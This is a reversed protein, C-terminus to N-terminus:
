GFGRVKKKKRRNRQSATSQSSEMAREQSAPPLSFAPTISDPLSEVGHQSFTGFRSAGFKSPIPRKQNRNSMQQSTKVLPPIHSTQSLPVSQVPAELVIEPDGDNQGWLAVMDQHEESLRDYAQQTVLKASEKQTFGMSTLAVKKTIERCIALREHDLGDDCHWCQLLESNLSDWDSLPKQLLLRTISKVDNFWIGHKRYHDTFQTLFSDFEEVSQFEGPSGAAELLSYASFELIDSRPEKLNDWSAILDNMAASVSFGYEQFVNFDQVAGKPNSGQPVNSIMCQIARDPPPAFTLCDDILPLTLPEDVCNTYSQHEAKQTTLMLKHLGRSESDRWLIFLSFAMADELDRNQYVDRSECFDISDIGRVPASPTLVFSDGCSQVLQDTLLFAHVLINKKIRSHIFVYLVDSSDFVRTVIKASVKLTVDESSIRHHWSIIRETMLTTLRMVIIEKSTLLVALEDNIRRFDRITSWTKAQILELQADEDLFIEIAKSRDFILLRNYTASWEILKWASLEELDFITGRKSTSLRLGMPRASRRVISGICWNGKVDVVAFENADWPNFAIDAIAFSALSSPNLTEFKKYAVGHHSSIGLIKIIHAGSETIVGLLDSSRLLGSSLKSFKIRKIRSGLYIDTRARTEEMHQAFDLNALSVMSLVSNTEGCAFITLEQPDRNLRLDTSTQVNAVALLGSILPDCLELRTAKGSVVARAPGQIQNQGHDRRVARWDRHQSNIEPDESTLRSIVNGPIFNLPPIPAETKLDYAKDSTMEVEQLPSLSKTRQRLVGKLNESVDDIELQAQVDDHSDDSTSDYVLEEYENAIEFSKKYKHAELDVLLGQSAEVIELGLKQAATFDNDVTWRYRPGSKASDTGTYLNSSRVGAALQIGAGKTGPLFLSSSM